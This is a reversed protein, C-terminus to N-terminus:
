LFKAAVQSLLYVILRKSLMQILGDGVKQLLILLALLLRCRLMVQTDAGIDTLGFISSWLWLFLRHGFFVYFLLFLRDNM